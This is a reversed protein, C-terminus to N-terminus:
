NQIGKPNLASKLQVSFAAGYKSLTAAPVKPSIAKWFLRCARGEDRIVSM